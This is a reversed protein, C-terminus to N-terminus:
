SVDPCYKLSEAFNRFRQPANAGGLHAQRCCFFDAPGRSGRRDCKMGIRENGIDPLVLEM